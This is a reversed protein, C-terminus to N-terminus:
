LGLTKVCLEADANLDVSLAGDEVPINKADVNEVKREVKESAHKSSEVM